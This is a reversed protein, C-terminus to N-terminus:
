RSQLTVGLTRATVQVEKWTLVNGPNAGNWFVAVRSVRPLTEKLLALRKAALEPFLTALGTV